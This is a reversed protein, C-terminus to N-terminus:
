YRPRIPKNSRVGVPLWDERKRRWDRLQLWKPHRTPLGDIGQEAVPHPEEGLVQGSIGSNGSPRNNECVKDHYEKILNFLYQMLYARSDDCKIGVYDSIFDVLHFSEHAIIDIKSDYRFAVAFVGCERNNNAISVVYGDYNKDIDDKLDFKKNIKSSADDITKDVCVYVIVDYIPIVLRKM